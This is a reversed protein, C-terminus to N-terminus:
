TCSLVVNADPSGSARYGLPALREAVFDEPLSELVILPRCRDITRMAGELAQREHGEVDLQIVAVRRDSGVIDDVALLDVEEHSGGEDIQSPDEVIHSGGGSPVGARNTTALLASGGETDLAAHTLVVNGLGNLMATIRACRYSEGNPEFAWVIAGKGRSRALAPLFDGFFTGAHVVDGDPDASRLLELTDPEWVRAELIARAAPRHRSARPVCYAGYENRALIGDPM